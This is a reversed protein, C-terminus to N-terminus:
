IFTGNDTCERFEGHEGYFVDSAVSDSVGQDMNLHWGLSNACLLLVCTTLPFM